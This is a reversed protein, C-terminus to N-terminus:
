FLKTFDKIADEDGWCVWKGKLVASDDGLDEMFEKADERSEFLLATMGDGLLGKKAILGGVLGEADDDGSYAIVTYGADEMKDEAKEVNIPACAVMAFCAISMLLGVLIKKM